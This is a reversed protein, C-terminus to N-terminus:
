CVPVETMPNLTATTPAVPVRAAGHEVNEGLASKGGILDHREGGRAALAGLHGKAVADELHLGDIM